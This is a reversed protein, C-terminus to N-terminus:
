DNVVTAFQMTISKHFATLFNHFVLEIGTVKNGSLFQDIQQFYMEKYECFPYDDFNIPIYIILRANKDSNFSILQEEGKKICSMLKDFFPKELQIQTNQVIPIDSARIDAEEKSINITKVECLVKGSFLVGELDPTQEGKKPSEPILRVQSCGLSLLYKYALAENLTDFLQHWGRGARKKTLYKRVKDKMFKKSCPDLVQLAKEIPLFLRKYEPSSQLRNEFNRGYANEDERDTIQDLLFEYIMPFEKRFM